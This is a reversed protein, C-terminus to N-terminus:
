FSAESNTRLLAFRGFTCCVERREEKEGGGERSVANSVQGVFDRSEAGGNNCTGSSRESAPQLRPGASGAM